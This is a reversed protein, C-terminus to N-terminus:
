RTGTFGRRALADCLAVLSEECVAVVRGKESLSLALSRVNSNCRSLATHMTIDTHEVAPGLIARDLARYEAFRKGFDDLLRAEDAYGLSELIPKLAEADHQVAQKAQEAERAFAISAEDTDAMVARNAADSAATFRVLLDASLRRSESLRELASNRDCGAAVIAALAVIVLPRRCTDM